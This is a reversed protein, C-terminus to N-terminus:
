LHQRGQLSLRMIKDKVEEPKPIQLFKFREETGATQIYLDGFKLVTPIVGATNVSIDQIRSIYLESVTRNFFGHQTSDIIRKDTLIWVDLTYMTLSYFAMSWLFLYWLSSLFLFIPSIDPDIILVPFVKIFIIPVLAFLFYVFLRILIVFPHRRLLLIVTEGEEQGLFSNTSRRLISFISRM